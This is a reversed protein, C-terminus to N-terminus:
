IGAFIKSFFGVFPWILGGLIPVGTARGFIILGILIFPGYRELFYLAGIHRAPLLGSLIKSGDLPAIPLVNFIALALNIQLSMLVMIIVLGIMSHKHPAGGIAFVVRLLIGSMLALVMNALPGAVSIWLMDKRPNSLRYPNVPVPKAWGFHVIFIMITGLPDLHALPNLTLRGSQKATDDGYKNAVYAHAFEHFTLALLIPPALLLLTLIEM